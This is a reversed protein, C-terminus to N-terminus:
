QNDIQAQQKRLVKLLDENQTTMQRIHEKNATAAVAVRRLNTALRGEQEGRDEEASDASEFGHKHPTNGQYRMKVACRDKFYTRLHFWTKDARPKREM